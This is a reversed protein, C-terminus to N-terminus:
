PELDFRFHNEGDPSVDALYADADLALGTATTLDLRTTVDTQRDHVFVDEKQNSDGAVLNDAKSQFAVFRGNGSVAAQGSFDEAEAGDSRVSVRRRPV